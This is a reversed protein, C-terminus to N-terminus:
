TTAWMRDKQKRRMEDAFRIAEAVMKYQEPMVEQGVEVIPFLARAVSANAYVPVNEKKATERIMLALHDVGKAVCSPATGPLRSWHLAVSYHTPNVIVVDATAVDSLMKNSAIAQARSRREGKVHPDGESEKMEDLFEKRSMRNKSLFNKHQFILDVVAILFFIVTSVFLFESVLQFSFELSFKADLQPTTLIEDFSAMLVLAFVTSFMILKVFSKFFEFLGSVGYKNKANSIISIRSIKPQLNSSTFLFMRQSLTAAFVLVFPLIFLGVFPIVIDKFVDWGAGGTGALSPATGARELIGALGDFPNPLLRDSILLTICLGLFGAAALVERSRPIEGKERAKQLKAPTPDFEKQQDDNQSM